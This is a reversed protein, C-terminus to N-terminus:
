GRHANPHRSILEQRPGRVPLRRAPHERRRRRPSPYRISRHPRDPSERPPPSNPPRRGNRVISSDRRMERRCRENERRRVHRGLLLEGIWAGCQTVSHRRRGARLLTRWQSLEDTDDHLRVSIRTTFVVRFTRSCPRVGLRRGNRFISTMGAGRRSAAASATWGASTVARSSDASGLGATASARSRRGGPRHLVTRWTVRLRLSQSRARDLSGRRLFGSRM